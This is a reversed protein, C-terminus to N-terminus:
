EYFDQMDKTLNIYKILYRLTDRKKWYGQQIIKSTRNTQM